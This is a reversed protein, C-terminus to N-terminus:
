EVILKGKMGMQRHNSLSCYYEFSGVQDATFEIEEEEGEGLENTQIGLEDIVLNHTGETNKLTLRVTQGKKVRIEVPSFRYNRASITVEKLQDVPVEADEEMMEPTPTTPNKVGQIKSTPVPMMPGKTDDTTQSMAWYLGGAVGMVLVVGVVAFVRM